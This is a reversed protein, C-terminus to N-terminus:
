PGDFNSPLLFNQRNALNSGAKGAGPQNASNKTSRWSQCGTAKSGKSRCLGVTGRLFIYVEKTLEIEIWSDLLVKLM